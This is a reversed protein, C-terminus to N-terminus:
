INISQAEIKANATTNMPPDWRHTGLGPAYILSGHTYFNYLIAATYLASIRFFYKNVYEPPSRM